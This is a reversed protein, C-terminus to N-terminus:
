GGAHFTNIYDIRSNSLGFIYLNEIHFIIFSIYSNIHSWDALLLAIKSFNDCVSVVNITLHTTDM